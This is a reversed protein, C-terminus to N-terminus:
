LYRCLLTCYRNCIHDIPRQELFRRGYICHSSLSGTTYQRFVRRNSFLMYKRM